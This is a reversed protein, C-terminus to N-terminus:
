KTAPSRHYNVKFETRWAQGDPRERRVEITEASVQRWVSRYLVSGPDARSSVPFSLESALHEAEHQRHSGDSAWVYYVIRKGKEDWAFLSDGEFIVKAQGDKESKIESTGRIFRGFQSTYCHTHKVGNPLDGTWCHGVVDRFWGFGPSLEQGAAAFPALLLSLQLLLIKMPM